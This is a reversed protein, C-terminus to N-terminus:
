PKRVPHSRGDVAHSFTTSGHLLPMMVQFCVKHIEHRIGPDFGMRFSVYFPSLVWWETRIISAALFCTLSKKSICPSTFRVMIKLLNQSKKFVHSMKKKLHSTHQIKAFIQQPERLTHWLHGNKPPKLLKFISSIWGGLRGVFTIPRSGAPSPKRVTEVINKYNKLPLHWM